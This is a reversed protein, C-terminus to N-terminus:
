RAREASRGAAARAAGAARCSGAPWRRRRDGLSRRERRDSSRGAVVVDDQDFLIEYPDGDILDAFLESSPRASRSATSSSTSSRRRTPCGTRRRRQGLLVHVFPNPWDYIQERHALHPCCRTRRRSRPTTPCSTSPPRSRRRAHTTRSGRVDYGNGIPSPSWAVNTVYAWVLLWPMLARAARRPVAVAAPRGRDRRDRDARDDGGHVPLPDHPRVPQAGIVSALLQPLAMLLELPAALPLGGFPLLLDRYFRIRDPQTADSVVRDPHRLMTRAIEPM